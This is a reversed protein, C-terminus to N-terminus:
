PWVQSPNSSLSDAPGPNFDDPNGSTFVYVKGPRNFACDGSTSCTLLGTLGPFDVISYLEQRIALPDIFLSGDEGEVAVQKIANLLLSAADYDYAPFESLFEEGYRGTYADMFSQYADTHEFELTTTSIYVGVANEGAAELFNPTNYVNWGSISINGLEPAEKVATIFTAFDKPEWGMFYVLDPSVEILSNIVPPMYPNSSEKTKQLVCEGGLSTFEQCLFESQLKQLIEDADYITALKRSGLENYAYQAMAVVQNLDNPATRFFGEARTDPDTLEPSTNTSSIMVRNGDSIIPAARLAGKSCTTGIVGVISDDRVLIQAGRQAGLENCEADFGILDIPHGYLEGGIDTIAIEIARLTDIGIPNTEWLLYGIRIPTGPPFILTADSFTPTITPTNTDTPTPTNTPVPTDTPIPTETPPISTETPAPTFTPPPTFSLTPAEIPAEETAPSSCSAFSLILLCLCYFLIKTKM